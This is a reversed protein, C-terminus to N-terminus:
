YKLLKGVCYPDDLEDEEPRCAIQHVIEPPNPGLSLSLNVASGTPVLVGPSPTQSIVSWRAKKDASAVVSGFKFGKHLLAKAADEFPLGRVDPVTAEGATPTGVGAEGQGSPSRHVDMPGAGNFGPSGESGGSGSGSASACAVALVALLVLGAGLPGEGCTGHRERRVQGTIRVEAASSARLPLIGIM